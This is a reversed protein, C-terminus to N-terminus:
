KKKETMNIAKIPCVEACIGCGKCYKEDVTLQDDERRIIGEPCLAYCLLCANCKERDIVAKENTWDSTFNSESSGNAKFTGGVEIRNKIEKKAPTQNKAGVSSYGINTIQYAAQAMQYNKEVSEPDKFVAQFARQIFEMKLDFVRAYAGLMASNPINKRTLKLSIVSADCTALQYKKDLKIEEPALPSNLLIFGNKKLDATINVSDLLTQDLIVIIDPHLIPIKLRIKEKDVRLFAKVPAGRREAGFYPFADIEEGSFFYAFGLLKIALLAGQGGRGHIVIEKM